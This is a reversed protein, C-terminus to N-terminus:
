EVCPHVLGASEGAEGPALRDPLLRLTGDAIARRSTATGSAGGVSLGGTNSWRRRVDGKGMKRPKLDGESSM